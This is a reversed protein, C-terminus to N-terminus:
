QISCTQLESTMEKVWNNWINLVGEFCWFISPEIKNEPPILINCHFSIRQIHSIIKEKFQKILFICM